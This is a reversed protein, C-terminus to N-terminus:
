LSTYEVNLTFTGSYDGQQQGDPIPIEGGIWFFYDGSGNTTVGDGSSHDSAGSGATAGNNTQSGVVDPTFTLNGGPGNLTVSNAFTVTVGTGDQGSATFKGVSASGQASNGGTVIGDRPSLVVNQQSNNFVQGFDIVSNKTLTLKAIVEIRAEATATASKQALAHGAPAVCLVTILVIIKRLSM